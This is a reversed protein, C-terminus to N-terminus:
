GLFGLASHIDEGQPLMAGCLQTSETFHKDQGPKLFSGEGGYAGLSGPGSAAPCTGCRGSPPAQAPARPLHVARSLKGNCSSIRDHSETLAQLSRMRCLGTNLSPLFPFQGCSFSFSNSFVRNDECTEKVPQSAPRHRGWAMHTKLLLQLESYMYNPSLVPASTM